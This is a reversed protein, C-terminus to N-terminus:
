EDLYQSLPDDDLYQRVQAVINADLANKWKQDSPHVRFVSYPDDIDTSHSLKIFSEMQQDFPLNVFNLLRQISVYTESLLDSYKIITVRDPYSDRLSHFLRAADIWRKFGYFEESRGCNKRSAYFWEESRSWDPLFEKPAGFWSSLVALPNRILCILKIDPDVRLLNELINNYRVEKYIVHTVGGSKEFSPMIGQLRKETQCIFRDQTEACRQFFEAVRSGTSEDDLYGKLEYSFLPQYCYKTTYSSNFVEGLWTSGSRPVSHIAVHQM